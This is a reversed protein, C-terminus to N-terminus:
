IHAWSIRKVINYLCPHKIGYIELIRKPKIKKHLFRIEKVDAETLKCKPNNIGKASCLGTNFAHKTNQSKSCYELNSYHNNYRNGDIHNVTNDQDTKKTCFSEAVLRHVCAQKGKGAGKKHLTLQYYRSKYPKILKQKKLSYINGYESIVYDPFDNIIKFVPLPTYEINIALM